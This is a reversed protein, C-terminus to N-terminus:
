NFYCYANGSDVCANNDAGLSQGLKVCRSRLVTVGTSGADYCYLRYTYGDWMGDKSTKNAVNFRGFSENTNSTSSYFITYNKGLANWNIMGILLYRKGSVKIECSASDCDTGDYEKFSIDIRTLGDSSKTDYTLSVRDMADNVNKGITMLGSLHARDRTVMYKPLAIAALIAIILVVVLLEILTFGLNGRRDLAEVGGAGRM